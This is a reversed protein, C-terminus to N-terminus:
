LEGRYARHQLVAFLKELNLTAYQHASRISVVAAIRNDFDLQLAKPPVVIPLRRIPGQFLNAQSSSKASSVMLRNMFPTRLWTELFRTTVKEHNPKVLAASRVLALPETTEVPAVRGISGSCSILVDGEEPRCRKSIRLYEAEDVYDVDEFDIYGDRVNRASLLKIGAEQRAPTQHEGDTIKTTVDDLTATPWGTPNHQPDGFMCVFISQALRDLQVLAERRKNRLFDAKDLVAAIRRQEETSPLPIRVQKLDSLVIRRIASGTKRKLADELVKPFRLVHGLYDPVVDQKPRLIALSSLVAFRENTKVVHVKGVTGDKSFLVDGCRPASKGSNAACFDAESIRACGDFDLGKDSVDKVTLFPYGVDIDVPTYHTGDTVLSCAEAISAQATVQADRGTGGDRM